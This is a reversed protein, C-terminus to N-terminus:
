VNCRLRHMLAALKAIELNLKYVRNIHICFLLLSNISLRSFITIQSYRAKKVPLDPKARCLQCCQAYATFERQRGRGRSVCKMSGSKYRRIPYLFVFCVKIFFCSLHLCTHPTVFSRFSLPPASAFKLSKREYNTYMYFAFAVVAAISFCGCRM